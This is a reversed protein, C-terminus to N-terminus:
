NVIADIEEETATGTAFGSSPAGPYNQSDANVQVLKTYETELGKVQDEFPDESDLQIRKLWTERIEPELSKLVESSSFAKNALERKNDTAKGNKLATIEDAMKSNKEILAKAWDPAEAQAKKNAEEKEKALREAEIEEATKPPTGKAKQELTRVRDDEKAIEEFSMFDNANDLVADIAADDADDAPKKSLRDALADLRKTSLNAKPYKAKLRDKIKQAPVAM